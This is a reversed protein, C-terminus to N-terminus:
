AQMAKRSVRRPVVSRGCESCVESRGVPYACNPCVGRRIRRWRRLVSVAAFMIWLMAAYFLANIAFGPWLPTLPLAHLDHVGWPALHAADETEL